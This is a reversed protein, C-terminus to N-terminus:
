KSSVAKTDVEDAVATVGEGTEPFTFTLGSGIMLRFTLIFRENEPPALGEGVTYDNEITHRLTLYGNSYFWDL